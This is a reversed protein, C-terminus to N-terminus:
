TPTRASRRGARRSSSLVRRVGYAGLIPVAQEAQLQGVESLPRERDDHQWRKRSTAKGHRLVILPHSKKRVKDFEALTDRDRDYTLLQSAEDLSAWVVHDIEDNPQYTSVDDSAVTRAAWYHVRKEGTEGNRVPYHQTSLPPGIRIDLGTEEAVERVAATTVHEGPDLKGKPFSWDDYRPRHVLLVEPGKRSVVAGAAVIEPPECM